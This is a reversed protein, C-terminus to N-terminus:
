EIVEYGSWSVALAQDDTLGIHPLPLDENQKWDPKSNVHVSIYANVFCLGATAENYFDNTNYGGINPICIRSGASIGVYAKGAYVAQKVIKDFGTEKFRQLLYETHGGSVYICDYKMAEDLSMTGDIDYTAINEPLIGIVLMDNKCEDVYSQPEPQEPSYAATPVFLIKAENIPKGLMAKFCEVIAKRPKPPTDWDCFCFGGSTLLVNEWKHVGSEAAWQRCQAVRAGQPKDGHEPDLYSYAYLQECPMINCEGCHALGKNQCCIAIPCEGHFPHGNTEICGGCNYSERFSCDTCHLGCRLDIVKTDGENQM